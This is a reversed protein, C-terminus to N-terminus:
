NGCLYNKKPCRHLTLDCSFFWLFMPVSLQHRRYFVQEFLFRFLRKMWHTQVTIADFVVSLYYSEALCFCAREGKEGSGSSPNAKYFLSVKCPSRFPPRVLEAQERVSGLESRDLLQWMSAAFHFQSNIEKKGCTLLSAPSWHARQSPRTHSLLIHPRFSCVSRVCLHMKKYFLMVGPCHLPFPLHLALLPKSLHLLFNWLHWLVRHFLSVLLPLQWRTSFVLHTIEKREVPIDAISLPLAKFRRCCRAVLVLKRWNIRKKFIYRGSAYTAFVKLLNRLLCCDTWKFLLM